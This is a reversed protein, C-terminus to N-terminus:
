AGVFVGLRAGDVAGAALEATRVAEAAARRAMALQRDAGPEIGTVEAAVAAPFGTADFSRVPAIASRGAALAGVTAPWDDGFASVAGVGAIHIPAGVDASSYSQTM